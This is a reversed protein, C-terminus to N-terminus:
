LGALNLPHFRTTFFELARREVDLSCSATIVHDWERERKCDLQHESCHDAGMEIEFGPRDCRVRYDCINWENLFRLDSIVAYDPAEREIREALRKVWYDPDSARRYETGWWQTLERQKGYPYAPSTIACPDFTVGAWRCLHQMASETDFAMGPFDQVWRDFAAANVEERLADAFAYHKVNYLDGLTNVIARCATDKGRQAKYGFGIIFTKM